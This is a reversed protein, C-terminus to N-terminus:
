RTLKLKSLGLVVISGMVLFFLLDCALKLYVVAMEAFAQSDM